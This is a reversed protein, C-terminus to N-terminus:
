KIEKQIFHLYTLKLKKIKWKGNEKVYEEEYNGWGTMHTNRKTDFLNDNLAWKGKATTDTTIQIDSNHGQHITIIEMLEKIYNIFNMKGEFKRNVLLPADPYFESVFDETFCNALEEWLKHDICYFYRHKLKKISEVDELVRIRKELKSIKSM